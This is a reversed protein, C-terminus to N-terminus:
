SDNNIGGKKLINGRQVNCVRATYYVPQSDLTRLPIQTHLVKM